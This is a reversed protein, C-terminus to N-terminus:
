FPLKWRQWPHLRLQVGAFFAQCHTVQTVNHSCAVQFLYLGCESCVYVPTFDGPHSFVLGWSEGLFQSFVPMAKANVAGPTALSLHLQGLTEQRHM